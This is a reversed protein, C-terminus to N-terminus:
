YPGSVGAPTVAAEGRGFDKALQRTARALLVADLGVAVFRAGLSLFRRAQTADTTLTDGAEVASKMELPLRKGAREVFAGPTLAVVKGAEPAAYAPALFFVFCLVAGVAALSLHRLIM